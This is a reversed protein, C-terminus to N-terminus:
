LARPADVLWEHTAIEIGYEDVFSGM